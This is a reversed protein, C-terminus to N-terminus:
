IVVDLDEIISEAVGLKIAEDANMCWDGDLGSHQTGLKKNMMADTIQTHERVHSRLWQTLVRDHQNYYDMKAVTGSRVVSGDHMIFTSHPMALRKHGAMFIFFGGSFACGMNVCIVPTKSRSIADMIAMTMYIDGGVSNILLRIPQRDESPIGVDERNIGIINKIISSSSDDIEGELWFVRNLADEYYTLLEPDSMTNVPLATSTMDDSNENIIDIDKNQM